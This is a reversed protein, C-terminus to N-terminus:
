SFRRLTNGVFSVSGWRREEGRRNGQKDGGKNSGEARSGLFNNSADGSIGRALLDRNHEGDKSGEEEAANSGRCPSADIKGVEESLLRM